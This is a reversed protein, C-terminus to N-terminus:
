KAALRELTNRAHIAEVGDGAKVALRFLAMAVRTDGRELAAEASANYRAARTEGDDLKGTPASHREPKNRKTRPLRPEQHTDNRRPAANGPMGGGVFGGGMGGGRILQAFYFSSQRPINAMSGASSRSFRLNNGGGGGRSGQQSPCQQAHAVVQLAVLALGFTLSQLITGRMM